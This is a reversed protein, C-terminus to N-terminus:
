RRSEALQLSSASSHLHHTSRVPPSSPTRRFAWSIPTTQWLFSIDSAIWLCLVNLEFAAAFESDLELVQM